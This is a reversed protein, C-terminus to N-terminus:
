VFCSELGVGVCGTHMEPDFDECGSIEGALHAFSHGIPVLRVRFTTLDKHPLTPAIHSDWHREYEDFLDSPIGYMSQQFESGEFNYRMTDMTFHPNARIGSERILDFYPHSDDIFRIGPYMTVDHVKHKKPDRHMFRRTTDLNMGPPMCIVIPGEDSGYVHSAHPPIEWVLRKGDPYYDRGGLAKGEVEVQVGVPFSFTNYFSAVRVQLLIGRSPDSDRKAGPVKSSRYSWAFPDAHSIGTRAQADLARLSGSFPFRMIRSRYEKDRKPEEVKFSVKSGHDAKVHIHGGVPASLSSGVPASSATLSMPTGIPSAGPRLMAFTSVPSGSAM